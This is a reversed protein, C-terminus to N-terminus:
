DAKRRIMREKESLILLEWRETQPPLLREIKEPWEIVMITPENWFEELHLGEAEGLGELRYLDVHVLPIRGSRYEHVLTFTPSTVIERAGIGCSIGRVLTSKGAGLDGYLAFISHPAAGEGLRRGFLETEEPSASIISDM